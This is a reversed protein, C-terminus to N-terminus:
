ESLLYYFYPMSHLSLCRHIPTTMSTGSNFEAQHISLREVTLSFPFSKLPPSWYLLPMATYTAWSFLFYLLGALCFSFYPHPSSYSLSLIQFLSYLIRIAPICVEDQLPSSPISEQPGNYSTLLLDGFASSEIPGKSM